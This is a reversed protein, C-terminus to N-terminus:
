NKLSHENLRSKITPIILYRNAVLILVFSAIGLAVDVSTLDPKLMKRAVVFALLELISLFNHTVFMRALELGITVLLTRYILEYFTEKEQWSANWFYGISAIIYLVVALIVVVAMIKEITKVTKTIINQTTIM